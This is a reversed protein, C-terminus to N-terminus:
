FSCIRHEKCKHLVQKKLQGKTLKKEDLATSVSNLFCEFSTAGLEPAVLRPHFDNGIAVFGVAITELAVSTLAIDIPRAAIDTSVAGADVAGAM